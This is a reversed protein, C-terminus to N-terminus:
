GSTRGAPATREAKRELLRSFNELSALHLYIRALLGKRMLNKLQAANLNELSKENVRHMGSLQLSGGGKEKALTAQM